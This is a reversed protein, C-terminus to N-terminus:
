DVGTPTPTAKAQRTDSAHLHYPMYMSILLLLVKYALIKIPSRKRLARYRRLLKFNECFFVMFRHISVYIVAIEVVGRPALFKYSISSLSTYSYSLLYFKVCHLNEM